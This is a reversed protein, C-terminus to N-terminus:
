AAFLLVFFNVQMETNIVYKWLLNELLIVYKLFIKAEFLKAIVCFSKSLLHGKFRFIAYVILVVYCTAGCTPATLLASLFLSDVNVIAFVRINAYVSSTSPSRGIVAASSLVLLHWAVPPRSM